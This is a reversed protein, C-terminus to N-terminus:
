TRQREDIWADVQKAYAMVHPGTIPDTRLANVVRTLRPGTSLGPLVDAQLAALWTSTAAIACDAMSAAADVAFPGEPDLAWELVGLAEVIRDRARAVETSDRKTAAIHGFLSRVAAELRLDNLRTLMRIRARREATGHMLRGGAMAEDVYEIIADTETLVGHPGLLAPITGAPVLARYAPSRYTGDPPEILPIDIRMLELALRVKFSYLSIPLQALQLM